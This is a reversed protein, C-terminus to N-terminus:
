ERSLESLHAPQYIFFLGGRGDLSVVVDRGRNFPSHSTFNLVEGWRVPGKVPAKLLLRNVQIGMESSTESVRVNDPGGKGCVASVCLHATDSSPAAPVRHPTSSSSLHQPFPLSLVTSSQTVFTPLFPHCYSPGSRLSFIPSLM